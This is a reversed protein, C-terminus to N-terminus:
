IQRRGPVLWTVTQVEENPLPSWLRQARTHTQRCNCLLHRWCWCRRRCNLKRRYSTGSGLWPVESGSSCGQSGHTSAPRSPLTWYIGCAPRPERGSLYAGCSGRESHSSHATVTSIMVQTASAWRVMVNPKGFLLEAYWKKVTSSVTYLMVTSGAPSESSHPHYSRVGVYHMIQTIDTSCTSTM